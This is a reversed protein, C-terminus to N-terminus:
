KIGCTSSRCIKTEGSFNRDGFTSEGVTVIPQWRLVERMVATVYPLSDRDAVQPLRDPGIVRDIEAQAKDQVEPHLAMAM